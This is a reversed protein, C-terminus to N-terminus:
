FAEWVSLMQSQHQVFIKKSMKQFSTWTSGVLAETPQKRQFALEFGGTATIKSIGFNTTEKAIRKKNPNQTRFFRNSILLFRISATLTTALSSLLLLQNEHINKNTSPSSTPNKATLQSQVQDM